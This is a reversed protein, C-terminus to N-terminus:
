TTVGMIHVKMGRMDKELRLVLEKKNLTHEGNHQRHPLKMQFILSSVEVIQGLMDLVKTLSHPEEKM